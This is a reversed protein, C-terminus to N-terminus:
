RSTFLVQAWVSRSSFIGNASSWVFASLPRVAQWSWGHVRRALNSVSKAEQVTPEVTMGAPPMPMPASNSYPTYNDIVSAPYGSRTDKESEHLPRFPRNHNSDMPYVISRSHDVSVFLPVVLRLASLSASRSIPLSPSSPPSFFYFTHSPSPTTGSV